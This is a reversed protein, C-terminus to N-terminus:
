GFANREAICVITARVVVISRNKKTPEAGFVSSRHSVKYKHKGEKPHAKTM